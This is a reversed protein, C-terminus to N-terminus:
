SERPDTRSGVPTPAVPVADALIAQALSETVSLLHDVQKQFYNFAIVAPIAVFLGIATAVLAESIGAMVEGSAFRPLYARKLEESAYQQIDEAVGNQLGMVTMLGADARAVMQIVVNSILAPLEFGDYEERAPAHQLVVADPRGAALLEFGGPYAPNMLSGQGELLPVGQSGALGYGLDTWPLTIGSVALM